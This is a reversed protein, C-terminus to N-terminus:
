IRSLVEDCVKKGACGYETVYKKQFVAAMESYKAYDNFINELEILLEDEKRCIRCPLEKAIDIYM